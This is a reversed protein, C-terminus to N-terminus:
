VSLTAKKGVGEVGLFFFAFSFKPGPTIFSFAPPMKFKTSAAFTISNSCIATNQSRYCVACNLVDGWKTAANRAGVTRRQGEISCVSFEALRSSTLCHTPAHTLRPSHPLILPITSSNICTVQTIAPKTENTNSALKHQKEVVNRPNLGFIVGLNPSLPHITGGYSIAGVM